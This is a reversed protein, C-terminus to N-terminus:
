RVVEQRRQKQPQVPLAGGAPSDTGPRGPLTGPLRRDPYLATLARHRLGGAGTRHVGTESRGSPSLPQGMAGGSSKMKKELASVMQLIEEVTVSGGAPTVAGGKKVTALDSQLKWLSRKLQHISGELQAVKEGNQGELATRLFGVEKELAGLRQEVDGPQTYEYIFNDKAQLTFLALLLALLIRM